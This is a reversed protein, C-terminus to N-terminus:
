VLQYQNDNEYEGLKERQRDCEFETCHKLRTRIVRGSGLAFSRGTCFLVSKITDDSFARRKNAVSTIIQREVQGGSLLQRSVSSKAGSKSQDVETVPIEALFEWFKRAIMGPCEKRLGEKQVARRGKVQDVWLRRQESTNFAYISIPQRIRGTLPDQVVPKTPDPEVAFFRKAM